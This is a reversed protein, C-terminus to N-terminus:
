SRESALRLPIEGTGSMEPGFLPFNLAVEARFPQQFLEAQLWRPRVPRAGAPAAASFPSAGDGADCGLDSRQHDLGSGM